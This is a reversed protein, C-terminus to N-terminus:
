FMIEVVVARHDSPWPTVVLDAREPKEGVIQVSSVEGGRVYVFDIRDHHDQPDDEETTPTWTFGPSEVEDPFHERYADTFGAQAMKMSQPFEVAMPHIGAEAAAETWDLHSPENFDGAVIVVMDEDFGEIENLLTDVGNGRAENAADVADQANDLLPADRYEIGKLQYPQYPSSYLHINCFALPRDDLTLMACLQSDSAAEIPIDSLIAVDNWTGEIEIDQNLLDWGLLDALAQANNRYFPEGREDWSEKEQIAVIRAGSERIVQATQELPADTSMGGWWINYTMVSLSGSEQASAISSGCVVIAGILIGRSFLKMTKARCKTFSRSLM